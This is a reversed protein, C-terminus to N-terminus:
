KLKSGDSFAKGVKEGLSWYASAAMDFVIPKLKGADIVGNEDLISEIDTFNGKVAPHHIVNKDTSIRSTIYFCVFFFGSFFDVTCNGRNHPKVTRDATSIISTSRDIIVSTVAVM